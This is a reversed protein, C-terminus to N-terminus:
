LLGSLWLESSVVGVCLLLLPPAQGSRQQRAFQAWRHKVVSYWGPRRTKWLSWGFEALVVDYGALYDFWYLAYDATFLMFDVPLVDFPFSYGNLYRNIGDVFQISADSYDEADYVSRFEVVDLQGGGLEDEFELGLFYKGYSGEVDLLLGLHRFDEDYVVFFMEREALYSCLEELKGADHSIGTSGLLFFNSYSDVRDIIGKIQDVDAFAVDVGVYFDDDGVIFEDFENEPNMALGYFLISLLLMCAVIVFIYKLNLTDNDSLILM